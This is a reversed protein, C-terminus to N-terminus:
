KIITKKINNSGDTQAIFNFLVAEDMHVADPVFVTDVINSYNNIDQQQQEEEETQQQQQQQQQVDVMAQVITM